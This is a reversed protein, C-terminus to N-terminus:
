VVMKNADGHGKRQQRPQNLRWFDEKVLDTTRAAPNPRIRKAEGAMRQFVSPFKGTSAVRNVSFQKGGTMM